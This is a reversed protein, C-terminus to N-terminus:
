RNLGNLQRIENAEVMPIGYRTSIEKAKYLKLAKYTSSDLMECIVVSPALNASKVLYIGLETHGMREELLGKAAILLPVHGPTRFFRVFQDRGGNDIESSIRAMESITLARDSDTVGTYTDLHNISISFSPKDGYPALGLIIKSITSDGVSINHLIDHMYMLGLKKAVENSIALCIMGGALNRLQAIHDPQTFQAAMVLDIEDERSVDDHIMIFKGTALSSLV